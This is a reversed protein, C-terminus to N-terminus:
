SLSFYKKQTLIANRNFNNWGFLNILFSFIIVGTQRQIISETIFNLMFFILIIQFLIDNFRFALILNYGLMILFVLFGLVGTGLFISLYQNHSNYKGSLLVDSKNKYCENLKDQVDGIGYGFLWENKLLNISCEYIGTRISTSNWIIVKEYTRPIFLEDFRQRLNPLYIIATVLVLLTLGVNLVKFYTKQKTKTFFYILILFLSVITMKSALVLVNGVLLFLVIIILYKSIKGWLSLLLFISISFVMSAYIPHLSILPINNIKERIDISRLSFLSESTNEFLVYSWFFAIFIITSIIFIRKFIKIQELFIKKETFAFCLPIILLSLSTELKQILSSINETYFGSLLYSIYISIMLLTYILVIKLKEKNKSLNFNLIKPLTHLVMLIVPLGKLNNPLIPFLGFCFMPLNSLYYNQKLLRYIKM